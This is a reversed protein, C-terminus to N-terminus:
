SGLHLDVAVEGSRKEPFVETESMVVTIVCFSRALIQPDKGSEVHWSRTLPPDSHEGPTANRLV